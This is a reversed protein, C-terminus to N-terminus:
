IQRLHMAESMDEMCNKLQAQAAEMQRMASLFSYRVSCKYNNKFNVNELTARELDVQQNQCTSSLHDNQQGVLELQKKLEVIQEKYKDKTSCKALMVNLEKSAFKGVSSEAFLQGRPVRPPSVPQVDIRPADLRPVVGSSKPTEEATPKAVTVADSKTVVENIELNFTRRKKKLPRVVVEKDKGEEKVEDPEIARKTSM